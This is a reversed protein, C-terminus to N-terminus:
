QNPHHTYRHSQLLSMNQQTPATHPTTSLNSTTALLEQQHNSGFMGSHMGGKPHKQSGRTMMSVPRTNDYDGALVKDKQDVSDRSLNIQEPHIESTRVIQTEDVSTTCKNPCLPQTPSVNATFNTQLEPLSSTATHPVLNHPKMGLETQPVHFTMGSTTTSMNTSPHGTRLVCEFNAALRPSRRSVPSRKGESCSYTPITQVPKTKLATCVTVVGDTAPISSPHSNKTVVTHAHPAPTDTKLVIEHTSVPPPWQTQVCGLAEFEGPKRLLSALEKEPFNSLGKVCAKEQLLDAAGGASLGQLKLSEACPMTAEKTTPDDPPLMSSTACDYSQLLSHTTNVQSYRMSLENVIEQTLSSIGSSRNHTHESQEPLHTPTNFVGYSINIPDVSTSMQQMIQDVDTSTEKSIPDVNSTGSIQSMHRQTATHHHTITDTQGVKMGFSHHDNTPAQSVSQLQQLVTKDDSFPYEPKGVGLQDFSISRAEVTTSNEVSIAGLTSCSESRSLTSTKGVLLPPQTPSPPNSSRPLSVVMGGGGCDDDPTSASLEGEEHTGPNLSAVLLINSDGSEGCEYVARVLIRYICIIM